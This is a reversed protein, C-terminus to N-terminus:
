TEPSKQLDAAATGSLMMLALLNPLAMLGNFIDAARWVADASLLPGAAIAAIYLLRFVPLAYRITDGTLYALCREAYFNWGLITTFAFIILCLSLFFVGAGDAFPLGKEWAFATIEFGTLRGGTVAPDWAGTVVIVLGTMTCLLFTDVFTGIMSVLGQRVPSDTKAAAAAIPSSGLGAENSFVGRGVGMRITTKLTLGAAAGGAARADFAGTLIVRIASPVEPLATLLILLSFLVYAGAMLPVIIENVAAIRRLGGFIIIAALATVIGGALAAALTVPRGSPSNAARIVPGRFLRDAAFAIGNTQTVTGIGLTGAALGALAFLQGLRRRLGDPVGSLGKEMYYFPGGLTRGDPAVTRYKVALMGEAFKTAMGFFAAILMWTLAGPGGAAIATAVGVINGTGVTASLATCLAGFSSVEGAGGDDTLTYKVAKGFHRIQPFRCRVTLLIGVALIMLILGDGWVADHLKEILTLILSREYFSGTVTTVPDCVTLFTTEGCLFLFM